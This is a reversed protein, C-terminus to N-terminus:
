FIRQLLDAITLSSKGPNQSSSLRIILAWSPDQSGRIQLWYSLLQPYGSTQLLATTYSGAKLQPTRASEPQTSDFQLVGLLHPLIPRHPSFGCMQHWFYQTHTASSFYSLTKGLCLHVLYKWLKKPVYCSLGLWSVIEKRGHTFTEM